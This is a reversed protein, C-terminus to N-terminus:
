VQKKLWALASPLTWPASGTQWFPDVPANEICRNGDQNMYCHDAYGDTPGAPPTAHPVIYWGSGDSGLCDTTNWACNRGTFRNVSGWADPGPTDMDNRGTVIRLRADPLERVGGHEKSVFVNSWMTDFVGLAWAGRIGTAWNAARMSIMGGQSHGAVVIRSCDAKPRACVASLVTTSSTKDFMCKTQLDIGQPSLVTGDGKYTPAVAVFGNAAAATIAATGAALDGQEAGTGHLYVFVPYKGPADPELGNIRQDLLCTNSVFYANGDHAKYSASFGVAAGALSPLVLVAVLLSSLLCSVAIRRRARRVDDSWDARGLVNGM